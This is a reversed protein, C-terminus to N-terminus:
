EFSLKCIFRNWESFINVDIGKGNEYFIFEMAKIYEMATCKNGDLKGNHRQYINM